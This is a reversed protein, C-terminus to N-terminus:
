LKYGCYFLSGALLSIVMLAFLPLIIIVILSPIDSEESTKALATTMPMNFEISVRVCTQNLSSVHNFGRRCECGYSGIQNVCYETDRDCGSM